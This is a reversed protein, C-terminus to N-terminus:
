NGVLSRKGMGKIEDVFEQINRESSGGEAVGAEAAEKWKLANRRMEEAQPGVTAELLCKKVEDRTIMKNEALGRCMRVGVKFVDVLYKADTVQDGWQPYCVVPVGSSLAEITSNWGCHTVFCAISEHALVKEQPSWQVIKGRDGAKELFEEPLLAVNSGSEGPPPPKIAWLFSVHSDLIGYAIENFQEQNILVVTGFSIYVVSSSEKTDLWQICDDAKLIDGNIATNNLNPNPHKCLPGVPKISCFKSMFDILDHELEQFTEMLVCFSKELNKFQGLSANRLFLVPTLPHLFSPIEDHKLVPMCPLVVNNQPNEQTPFLAPSHFYHYYSAFSACSQIWLLACPIGFNEAVDSVWPIFPNNILCSVPRGEEKNRMVMESIEKTGVLELQAMYDLVSRRPDDEELREKFFEFRIFGDGVPIVPISENDVVNNANRMQKEVRETAAFTVLLGKSALLKGLRLLPNIHGQGHFSVLLVHVLSESAVM